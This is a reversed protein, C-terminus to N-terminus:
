CRRCTDTTVCCAVFLLCEDVVFWRVRHVSICATVQATWLDRAALSVSLVPVAYQLVTEYARAVSRCYVGRAGHLGQMICVVVTVDCLSISWITVFLVAIPCEVASM